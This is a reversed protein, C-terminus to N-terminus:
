GSMETEITHLAEVIWAVDHSSQAYPLIRAITVFTFLALGDSFDEEFTKCVNEHIHRLNVDLRTSEQNNSASNRWSWRFLVEQKIKAIDQLPSEIPSITFDILVIRTGDNSALINSFTLDGHEYGTPISVTAPLSERRKELMSIAYKLLADSRPTRDIIQDIKERIKNTSKEARREVTNLRVFDTLRQIFSNVSIPSWTTLQQCVPLLNVYDMDFHLGDPYKPSRIRPTSVGHYREQTKFFSNQKQKQLQFNALESKAPSWKRVFVGETDGLVEIQSGSKAVGFNPHAIPDMLRSRSIQTM